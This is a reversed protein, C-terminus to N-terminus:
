KKTPKPPPTSTKNDSTLPTYTNIVTTKPTYTHTSSVVGPRSTDKAM